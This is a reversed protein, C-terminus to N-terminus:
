RENRERQLKEELLTDRNATYLAVDVKVEDISRNITQNKRKIEVIQDKCELIKENSPQFFM